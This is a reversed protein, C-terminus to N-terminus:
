TGDFTPANLLDVIVGGLNAFLSPRPRGILQVVQWEGDGLDDASPPASRVSIVGRLRAREAMQRAATAAEVADSTAAALAANNANQKTWANRPTDGTGDNARAGVSIIKLDM